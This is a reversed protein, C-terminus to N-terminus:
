FQRLDSCTVHCQHTATSSPLPHLSVPLEFTITTGRVNFNVALELSLWLWALRLLVLLGATLRAPVSVVLVCPIRLLDFPMGQPPTHKSAPSKSAPATTADSTTSARSTVCISAQTSARAGAGITAARPHCDLSSQADACSPTSSHAPSPPSRTLLSSLGHPILHGPLPPQQPHTLPHHHVVGPQLPPAVPAAQQAM